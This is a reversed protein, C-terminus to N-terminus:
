PDATLTRSFQTRLEDDNNSLIKELLGIFKTAAEVKYGTLTINQGLLKHVGFMLSQRFSMSQNEQTFKQNEEIYKKILKIPYDLLTNILPM